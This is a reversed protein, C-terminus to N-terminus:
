FTLRFQFCRFLLSNLCTRQSTVSQLYFPTNSSHSPVLFFSFCWSSVHVQVFGFVLHNTCLQFVKPALVLWPCGWVWLVWCPGFKLSDVVKGKITCKISKWSAWMWIANQRPVGLRSDQFEWLKSEWSKASGYSQM